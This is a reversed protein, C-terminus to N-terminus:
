MQDTLGTVTSPLGSFLREPALVARNTWRKDQGSQSNCDAREPRGDDKSSQSCFFRFLAALPFDSWM